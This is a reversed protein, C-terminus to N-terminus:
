QLPFVPVSAFSGTKMQYILGVAVIPASAVVEVTGEALVALDAFYQRLFRARQEGANLTFQTEGATAGGAAILRLYVSVSHSNPNAIALGVDVDPEPQPAMLVFRGARPSPFVSARAVLKEAEGAQFLIIGAVPIDTTIRCWGTNM